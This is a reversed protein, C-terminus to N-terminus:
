SVAKSLLDCVNWGSSTAGGLVLYREQNALVFLSIFTLWDFDSDLNPYGKITVVM